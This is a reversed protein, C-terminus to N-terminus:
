HAPQSCCTSNILVCPRLQSRHNKTTPWQTPLGLSSIGLIQMSATFPQKPVVTAGAPPARWTGNEKTSACSPDEPTVRARIKKGTATVLACCPIASRAGGWVKKASTVALDLAMQVATLTNWTIPPAVLRSYYENHFASTAPQFVVM